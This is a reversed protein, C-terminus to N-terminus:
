RAVVVVGKATEPFGRPGFRRAFIVYPGSPADSGSDTRGDWYVTMEDHIPQGVTLHRVLRGSLDYAEVDVLGPGEALRLRVTAVAVRVPDQPYFVRPEISLWAGTAPAQLPAAARYTGPTAGAISSRWNTSETGPGRPDVRELSVGRTSVLGPHHQSPTYFVRDLLAGSGSVLELEDGDNRLTARLPLVRDAPIPLEPFATALSTRRDDPSTLPAHAVFLTGPDWSRAQFGLRVSSGNGLTLQLGNPDVAVPSTVLIEVFEPREHGPTSDAEYLIETLVLDGPRPMRASAAREATNARGPTAGTPDESASWAEADSGSAAPRTRELSRGSPSGDYWAETGRFADIEGGSADLARVTEITRGFPWADMATWPYRDSPGYATEILERPTLSSTSSRAEYLVARLGPELSIPGPVPASAKWVGSETHRTALRVGRLSITHASLSVFEVFAVQDPLGDYPDSRSALHVESIRTNGALPPGAIQITSDAARNGFLDFLDRVTLQGAETRADTLIDIRDVGIPSSVSSLPVGDVLFIGGQIPESFWATITDPVVHDAFLLSPPTRDPEHISNLHGPTAGSPDLSAGWNVRHWSPGAPDRRELSRGKTGWAAQYSVEDRAGPGELSLRDGTDNLSPWPSVVLYPVGPWRAAFAAGNRVLTVYSGPSLFVGPPAISSGVGSEDRLTWGHLSVPATGTQFLEVFELAPENPAFHIENIVLQASVWAILILM